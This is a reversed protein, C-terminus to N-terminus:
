LGAPLHLMTNHMKLPAYKFNLSKPDIDRFSDKGFCSRIIIVAM